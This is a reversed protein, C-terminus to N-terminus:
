HFTGPSLLMAAGLAFIIIAAGTIAAAKVARNRKRPQRSTATEGGQAESTQDEDSSHPMPLFLGEGGQAESTQDEEPSQPRPLFLGEGGQEESTQDEESIQPMSLFFGEGGISILRGIFTEEMGDGARNIAAYLPNLRIEQAGKVADGIGNLGDQLKYQKQVTAPTATPLNAGVAFFVTTKERRSQPNAPSGFAQARYATVPHGNRTECSYVEVSGPVVQFTGEGMPTRYVPHLELDAGVRKIKGELAQIGRNGNNRNRNSTVMRKGGKQRRLRGTRDM